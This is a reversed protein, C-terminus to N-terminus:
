CVKSDWITPWKLGFTLIFTQGFIKRGFHLEMLIQVQGGVDWVLFTLNRSRGVFGRVRECNFGITPVTNVYQDFKLRCRNRYMQAVPKQYIELNFAGLKAISPVVFGLKVVRLEVVALKVSGLKVIGLKVVGLKVVGLKVAGLIVVGLEVVALKVVGLIAVGLEAHVFIDIYRAWELLYAV